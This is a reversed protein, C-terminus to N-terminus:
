QKMWKLVEGGNIKVFYTGRPLQSVDLSGNAKGSDLARGRADFLEYDAPESFWVQDKGPNPYIVVVRETTNKHSILVQVAESFGNKRTSNMTRLRYHNHGIKPQTDTFHYTQKSTTNGNGQLTGISVFKKGNTSREVLITANNYETLFTAKLAVQSLSNTTATFSSFTTKGSKATNKKRLVPEINEESDNADEVPPIFEPPLADEVYTIPETCGQIKAIFSTGKTTTFGPKLIIEEGATFVTPVLDSFSFVNGEASLTKIAQHKQVPLNPYAIHNNELCHPKSISMVLQNLEVVGEVGKSPIRATFTFGERTIWSIEYQTEEFITDTPSTLTYYDMTSFLLLCEYSGFPTHLTGFADVESFTEELLAPYYKSTHHNLKESDFEDGFDLPLETLPKTEQDFKGDFIGNKTYTKSIVDLGEEFSYDYHMFYALSDGKKNVMPVKAVHTANPVQAEEVTIDSPTIMLVTGSIFILNTLDAPFNWVQAEESATGIDMTIRLNEFANRGCVGYVSTETGIGIHNEAAAEDISIPTNSLIQTNITDAPISNYDFFTRTFTQASRRQYGTGCNPELCTSYYTGKVTLIFDPSFMFLGLLLPYIISSCKLKKKM